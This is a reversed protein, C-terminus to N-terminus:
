FRKIIETITDNVKEKATNVTLINYKKEIAEILCVDFIEANINEKIKAKSYKRKKLRIKLEPIDCKCIICLDVYKKPLNQSLHSDIILHKIKKIKKILEKNLKKTDVEYTDLKRLYNERLGKEKILENVNLYKYKLKRALAKAITTKGTGPTGTIIITKM